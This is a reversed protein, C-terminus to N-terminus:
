GDGREMVTNDGDDRRARWGEPLFVTSTPDELLAPGRVTEGAEMAALGVLRGDVWRRGRYFRVPEDRMSGSATETLIPLDPLPATLGLRFSVFEVPKATEGGFFFVRHHAEAFRRAVDAASLADLEDPAFTVPVEFAQGVFRMDATFDLAFPGELRMGAARALAATRMEAFAARLTDAAAGDVPARRTLSAHQM